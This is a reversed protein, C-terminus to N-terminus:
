RSATVTVPDSRVPDRYIGAAAIKPGRRREITEDIGLILPGAPAFTVVLLELLTRSVSLSSWSARNLVRHYTQFGRENGLGVSRLASSVMRQGPTLIAGVVLISVHRWIRRSFLPAFVNLLAIITAPLILM